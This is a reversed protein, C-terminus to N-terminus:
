FGIGTRKALNLQEVGISSRVVRPSPIEIPLISADLIVNM